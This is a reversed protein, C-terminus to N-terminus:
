IRLSSARHGDGVGVDGDLAGDGCSVAEEAALFASDDGQAERAATTM